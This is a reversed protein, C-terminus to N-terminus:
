SGAQLEHKKRGFSKRSMSVRSMVDSVPKNIIDEDNWGHKKRSSLTHFNIGTIDAWESISHTEGNATIFITNKRNNGQEKMSIWRCNEPSYNGDPNIRDITCQGYPAKEDYGNAYAWARFNEFGHEGNWEDCLKIGRGGYRYYDDAKKYYCRAWMSRYLRYLRTGYGGHKTTAERLLERTRERSACGCSRSTGRRLHLAFVDRETGCDCRCKYLVQIGKNKAREIVVWHGFRKGSLDQFPM